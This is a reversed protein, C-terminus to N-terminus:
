PSNHTLRSTKVYFIVKDGPQVHRLQRKNLRVWMTANPANTVRVPVMRDFYIQDSTVTGTM